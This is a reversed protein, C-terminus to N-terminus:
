LDLVTSYGKIDIALLRKNRDLIEGRKALLTDELITRSDVQKKIFEEQYIQIYFLRTLLSLFGIVLFLQIVLSRGSYSNTRSTM